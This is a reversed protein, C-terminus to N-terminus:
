AALLSPHFVSPIWTLHVSGKQWWPLHTACTPLHVRSPLACADGNTPMLVLPDQQGLLGCPLPVSPMPMLQISYSQTYMKHPPLSSASPMPMNARLTSATLRTGLRLLIPITQTLHTTWTFSVGKQSQSLLDLAAKTKGAFMLSAFSRSLNQKATSSNFKPLRSQITRGELALDNLNGDEWLRLRRELCTAHEKAKSKRHPKQLLLIPLVITAKLAISEMSSASAFAAFLRSLEHVFEKGVKGGPVKFSNIRWHVVESYTAELAHSFDDANLIGWSFVPTSTPQFTPLQQPCPPCSISDLQQTPRSASTDPTGTAGNESLASTASGCSDLPSNSVPTLPLTTTTASQNVTPTVTGPTPTSSVNSCSGLKSPLCNSCQKGAKVCACGRCSGTRNCRCCRVMESERVLIAKIVTTSSTAVPINIFGSVAHVTTLKCSTAVPIFGSVAHM